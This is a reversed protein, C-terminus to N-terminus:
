LSIEEVILSPANVYIDCEYSEGGKGEWHSVRKSSNTPGLMLHIKGSFAEAALSCRYWGDGLPEISAEEKEFEGNAYTGVVTGNELDFIADARNPYISNMRLGLRDGNNGKKALVTVRYKSGEFVTLNYISTSGAIAADKRNLQAINGAADMSTEVNNHKWSSFAPLAITDLVTIQKVETETVEKAEAETSKKNDEKCSAMFIVVMALVLKKM